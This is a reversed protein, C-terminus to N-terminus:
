FQDQNRFCYQYWYKRNYLLTKPKLQNRQYDKEDVLSCKKSCHKIHLYTNTNPSATLSPRSVFHRKVTGDSIIEKRGSVDESIFQTEFSQAVM